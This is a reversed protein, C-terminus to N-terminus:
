YWLGNRKMYCVYHGSSLKNGIHVIVAVLKYSVRTSETSESDDSIRVECLKLTEDYKM